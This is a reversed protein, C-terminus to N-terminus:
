DRSILKNFNSQEGDATEDQVLLALKGEDFKAFWDDWEIRELGEDDRGFDLRIVGPDDGEKTDSVAAPKGGREDAWAKIEDHDTLTRSDSMIRKEKLNRILAAIDASRYGLITGAEWEKAVDWRDTTTVIHKLREADREYGRRAVTVYPVAVLGESGEVTQEFRDLVFGQEAAFRELDDPVIEYFLAVHKTGARMLDLEIGEHPGIRGAM